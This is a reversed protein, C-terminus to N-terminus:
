NSGNFKTTTIWKALVCMKEKARLFILSFPSPRALRAEHRFEGDGEDVVGVGVAAACVAYLGSACTCRLSSRVGLMVDGCVVSATPM